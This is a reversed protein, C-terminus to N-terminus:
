PQEPKPQRYLCKIVGWSVRNVASPGPLFMCADRPESDAYGGRTEPTPPHDPLGTVAPSYAYQAMTPTIDLVEGEHAAAWDDLYKQFVSGPGQCLAAYHAAHTNIATEDYWDTVTWGNNNAKSWTDYSAVIPGAHAEWADGSFHFRMFWLQKVTPGRVTWTANSNRISQGISIGDTWSNDDPTLDGWCVVLDCTVNNALGQALPYPGQNDQVVGKPDTGGAFGEFVLGEMIQRGGQIVPGGTAIKGKGGHTGLYVHDGENLTGLLAGFSGEAPDVKINAEPNGNGIFIAQHIYGPAFGRDIWLYTKTESCADPAAVAIVLLATLVCGQTMTMGSDRRVRQANM